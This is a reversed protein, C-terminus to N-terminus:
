GPGGAMSREGPMTTLPPVALGALDALRAMLGRDALAALKEKRTLWALAEELSEAERIKASATAWEADFRGRQRNPMAALHRDHELFRAPDSLVHALGDEFREGNAAYEAALANTRAIIAPERREEPILLLGARRLAVGSA